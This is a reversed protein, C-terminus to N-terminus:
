CSLYRGFDYPSTQSKQSKWYYCERCISKLKNSVVTAVTAWFCIRGVCGMQSEPEQEGM